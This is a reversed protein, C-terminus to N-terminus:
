PARGCPGGRLRFIRVDPGPRRYAAPYPDFSWDFSFAVPGRGPRYPSALRKAVVGELGQERTAAVLLDGHDVFSPTTQWAPRVLAASM